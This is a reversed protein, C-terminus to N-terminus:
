KGCEAATRPVTKPRTDMLRLIPQHGDLTFAVAIRRVALSELMNKQVPFDSAQFTKTGFRFDRLFHAFGMAGPYEKSLTTSSFKVALTTQGCTEPKWVFEAAEAFNYNNLTKPGDDCKLTLVTLYPSELAEPNVTTPLTRIQVKYETKEKEYDAGGQDVYALFEHTLPFARGMWTKARRGKLDHVVFPKAPGNLFKWVLGNTKDFLAAHVKQPPLSEVEALVRSEWLRQVECAALEMAYDIFYNLPGDILGGVPGPNDDLVGILAQLRSAAAKALDAPSKAAQAPQTPQDVDASSLSAAAFRYASEQGSVLPLVDGLAKRYDDLKSAAELVVRTEAAFTQNAGSLLKQAASKLQAEERKIFPENTDKVELQRAALEFRRLQAYYDPPKFGMDAFADLETQMVEMLKFYPNNAGAMKAATEVRDRDDVILDVGEHFRDAFRAWADFARQAYWARFRSLRGAFEAQNDVARNFEAIFADVAKKGAATYAPTVRPAGEDGVSNLGWFEDLGHGTLWQRSDAWDVLWHMEGGKLSALHSLRVKFDKLALEFHDVDRSWALYAVYLRKFYPSLEKALTPELGALVAEPYAPQAAMKDLSDGRLRAQLTDIRWVLHGIHMGILNESSQNNLGDITRDLSADLPDLIQRRFLACYAAKVREEGIQSQVLGMRPIWWGKNVEEMDAVRRRLQEMVLIRSEMPGSAAPPAPFEETITRIAKSNFTFSLSLLGCVCFLLLLWTGLGLLRMRSRRRRFELMPTFLGRDAPFVKAFLDKAFAAPRKPDPAVAADVADKLLPNVPPAKDAAFEAATFYVGRFSPTELYPNEEFLAEALGALPKALALMEGPLALLAACAPEDRGLLRVTAVRDAIRGLAQATLDAPSAEEDDLSEGLAQDGGPPPPTQAFEAFGYLHDAKNVVLYVPFRAGIVRMCENIRRRIAKGGAALADPASDRLFDVGVVVVAGNVPEKRQRDALADLFVTWEERERAGEEPAVWRGTAEVVVAADSFCWDCNATPGPTLVESVGTLISSLGAKRLLTTKGSGSPGLVLHWPLVYLPDGMKALRSERLFAEAAAFRGRISRVHRLDQAEADKPAGEEIVRKVFAQERKRFRWVKLLWILGVTGVVGAIMVAVSWSPWKRWQALLWAGAVLLALLLALVLITLLFLLFKKM